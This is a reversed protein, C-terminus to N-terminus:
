PVIGGHVIKRAELLEFFLFFFFANFDDAGWVGGIRTGQDGSNQHGGAESRKESARELGRDQRVRGSNEGELFDNWTGVGHIGDFHLFGLFSWQVRIMLLLDVRLSLFLLGHPLLHKPLVTLGSPTKSIM